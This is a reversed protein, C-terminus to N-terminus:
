EKRLLEIAEVDGIKVGKSDPSIGNGYQFTVNNQLHLGTHRGMVDPACMPASRRNM